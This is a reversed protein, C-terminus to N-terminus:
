HVISPILRSGTATVITIPSENKVKATIITNTTGLDIGLSVKKKM